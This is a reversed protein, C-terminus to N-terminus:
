DDSQVTSSHNTKGAKWNTTTTSNPCRVVWLNPYLGTTNFKKVRCGDVEGFDDISTVLNSDGTKPQHTTSQPACGLLTVSVVVLALTKKM